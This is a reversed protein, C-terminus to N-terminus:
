LRNVSHFTVKRFKILLFQCPEGALGASATYGCRQKQGNLPRKELRDLEAKPRTSDQAAKSLLGQDSNCYTTTTLPLLRALGTM